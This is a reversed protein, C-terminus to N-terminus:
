EKATERRVQGGIPRRFVCWEHRYWLLNMSRQFEFQLGAAEAWRVVDELKAYHIWDGASLLDHVRNAWARWHPRDAMDKYLLIGGDTVHEAATEILRAQQDRQVHHMVDVLSVVDFCGVPWMEGLDRLEFQIRSSNPLTTTIEQALKIADRNADFGVASYIRNLQALVAVFLGSGCGVDLITAGQPVYDVLAHLPCIYPRLIQKYKKGGHVSRYIERARKAVAAASLPEEDPPIADVNSM